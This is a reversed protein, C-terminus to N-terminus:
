NAHGREEDRCRTKTKEDEETAGVAKGGERVIQGTNMRETVEKGEKERQLM